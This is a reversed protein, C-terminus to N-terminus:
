ELWNTDLYLAGPIHSEAYEEPVGFNVHFVLVDGDPAAEPRRGDLVDRLWATHVLKEYNTLREVPLEGDASWASWGGELARVDDVGLERLRRVAAGVTTDDPGAGYVVISRDPAISRSALERRLEIEDVTSLWTAPLAAAGPVHGGRPEGGLRWGNYAALPRLDVVTLTPDSLQALLEAASISDPSITATDPATM